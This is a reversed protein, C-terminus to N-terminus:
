LTLTQESPTIGNENFVDIAFYYTENKNLSGMELTSGDMVQYSLYLKDPAIGYRVIYGQAEPVPEWHLEVQCPDAQSRTGAFSTVPQPKEGMGKGFVRLERLSLHDSVTYARNCFRIYRAQFPEEFEIYDHPHDTTKQSYDAVTYWKEGDWSAEIVYSQYVGPVVGSQTAGYEDFNVMQDKNVYDFGVKIM